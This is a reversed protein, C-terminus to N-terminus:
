CHTTTLDGAINHVIDLNMVCDLIVAKHQQKFEQGRQKSIIRIEENIRTTSM